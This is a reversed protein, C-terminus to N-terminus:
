ISEKSNTYPKIIKYLLFLSENAAYKGTGARIGPRWM